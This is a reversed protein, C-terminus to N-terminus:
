RPPKKNAGQAAFSLRLVADSLLRPCAVGGYIYIYIYVCICMCM